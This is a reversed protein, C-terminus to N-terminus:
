YMPIWGGGDARSVRRSSDLNTSSGAFNMKDLPQFDGFVFPNVQKAKNIFEREIDHGNIVSTLM